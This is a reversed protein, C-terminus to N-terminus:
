IIDIMLKIIYLTLLGLVLLYGALLRDYIFKKNVKRSDKSLGSHGQKRHWNNDEEIAWAVFKRIVIYIVTILLILAIALFLEKYNM